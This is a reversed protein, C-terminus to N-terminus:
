SLARLQVRINGSHAAPSPAQIYMRAIPKLSLRPHEFPLEESAEAVSKAVHLQELTMAHSSTM